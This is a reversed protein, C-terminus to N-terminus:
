DWYTGVLLQGYLMATGEFIMNMTGRHRWRLIYLDNNNPHREIILDASVTEDNDEIWVTRYTGIFIDNTTLPGHRKCSETYPSERSDGHHYKISLCGDGENRIVLSGIIQGPQKPM